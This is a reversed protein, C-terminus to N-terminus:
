DSSGSAGVFAATPDVILALKKLVRALSLQHGLFVTRLLLHRVVQPLQGVVRAVNTAQLHCLLLRDVELQLMGVLLGLCRGLSRGPM